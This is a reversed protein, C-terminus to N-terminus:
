TAGDQTAPGRWVSPDPVFTMRLGTATRMADTAHCRRLVPPLDIWRMVSGLAVVLRGDQVGVRVDALASRALALDLHFADEGLQVTLQEADLVQVRALPGLASRGKPVARVRSTSKWTAVGDADRELGALIEAAARVESKAAGDSARPFRNVIVGDVGVGLMSIAALARLTRSAADPWPVTVLRATTTPRQLLQQLRVAATRATSLSTFAVDDGRTSRWMAMRPTLAADLLRVLVSPLEVLERLRAFPGADVVVVDADALHAAARALTSLHSMGVVGTWAEPLLADGGLEAFLSGVASAVADVAADAPDADGSGDVLAVQLGEAELASATARALTSTGAGGVGSLLILRGM